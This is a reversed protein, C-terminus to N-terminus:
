IILLIQCYSLRLLGLSKKIDQYFIKKGPNAQKVLYNKKKFLFFAQEAGIIDYSIFCNPENNQNNVVFLNGGELSRNSSKILVDKTLLYNIHRKSAPSMKPYLIQKDWPGPTRRDPYKDLQCYESNKNRIYIHNVGDILYDRIWPDDNHIIAHQIDHEKVFHLLDKKFDCKNSIVLVSDNNNDTKM